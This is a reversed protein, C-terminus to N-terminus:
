KRTYFNLVESDFVELRHKADSKTQAWTDFTANQVEKLKTKLKTKERELKAITVELHAKSPADLEAADKKYSDILEEVKEINVELRFVMNEKEEIMPDPDAMIIMKEVEKGQTSTIIPESKTIEQTECQVFLLVIALGALGIWKNNIVAKTM